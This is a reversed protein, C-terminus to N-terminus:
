ARYLTDLPSEAGLHDLTVARLVRLRDDFTAGDARAYTRKSRDYRITLTEVPRGNVRVEATDNTDPGLEALTAIGEPKPGYLYGITSPALFREPQTSKRM